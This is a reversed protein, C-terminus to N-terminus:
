ATKPTGPAGIRDFSFVKLRILVEIRMLNYTLNMLGTGVAARAAGISRLFIGGMENEIAGFVHEVRARVKSKRKNNTQQEESLPKDRYAREHILSDHQSHALRQEQETSRYASDAWVQEGGTERSRLVHDFAQSDHV